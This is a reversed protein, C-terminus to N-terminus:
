LKQLQSIDTMDLPQVYSNVKELQGWPKEGAAGFVVLRMMQDFMLNLSANGGVIINKAPIDLLDSFIEKM